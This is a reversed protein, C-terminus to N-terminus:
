TVKLALRNGELMYELSDIAERMWEKRLANRAAPLSFWERRRQGCEPWVELEECVHMVFMRAKCPGNRKSTFLFGDDHPGAGGGPPGELAELAGRVGAEEVTERAAADELAEDTEWGGKPLVYEGVKRRSTILMVEVAAAAGGGSGGRGLALARM